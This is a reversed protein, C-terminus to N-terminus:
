VRIQFMTQLWLGSVPPHFFVQTSTHFLTRLVQTKLNRQSFFFLSCPIECGMIWSSLWYAVSVLCFGRAAFQQILLSICATKCYIWHIKGASSPRLRRPLESAATQSWKLASPKSIVWLWMSVFLFNPFSISTHQLKDGRLGMSMWPLHSLSIKCEEIEKKKLWHSELKM